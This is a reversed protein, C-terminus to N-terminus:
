RRTSPRSDGRKSHDEWAYVSELRAIERQDPWTTPDLFSDYVEILMRTTAHGLEASVAKPNRGCVLASTVYSRRLAKQADGERPAVKARQLLPKWGHRLWESYTLPRNDRGPFVRADARGVFTREKQSLLAGRLPPRLPITWKATTKTPENVDDQGRVVARWIRVLGGAWSVDPWIVGVGEGWRLGTLLLFETPPYYLLENEDRPGRLVVLLRELEDAHFPRFEVRRALRVRSTKTRRRPLGGADFPSSAILGRIRADRLILRLAALRDITSRQSLDSRELEVRLDLVRAADVAELSSEGIRAVLDAVHYGYNQWTRRSVAPPQYSELWARAWEAFTSHPSRSSPAGHLVPPTRAELLWSLDGLAFARNLHRVIEEGLARDGNPVVKRRFLRRPKGDATVTARALVNLRGRDDEYLVAKPVADM